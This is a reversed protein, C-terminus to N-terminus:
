LQKAGATIVDGTVNVSENKKAENSIIDLTAKDASVKVCLSCTDSSDVVKIDDINASSGKCTEYIKSFADYKNTVFDTLKSADNAPIVKGLFEPKYTRM